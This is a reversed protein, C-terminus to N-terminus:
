ETVPEAVVEFVPKLESKSVLEGGANRTAPNQKVNLGKKKLAAWMAQASESVRNDSVLRHGSKKAIRLLANAMAQGRGQGRAGAPVKSDKIQVVGQDPLEIATIEGGKEHRVTINGRKDKTASIEGKPKQTLQLPASKDSDGIMDGQKRERIARGGLPELATDGAGQDALLDSLEKEGIAGKTGSRIDLGLEGALKDAEAQADFRPEIDGRSRPPTEATLMDPTEPLADPNAVPDPALGLRESLSIAKGSPVNPTPEFDVSGGGPGEPASPPNGGEPPKKGYDSFYSREAANASPGMRNQFGESDVLLRDGLPPIVKAVGKVAGRAVKKAGRAIIGERNLEGAGVKRKGAGTMSSKIDPFDEGVDALMKTEGTMRGPNKKDLKRVAQIDTNGGRQTKKADNLEALSKRADQYKTLLEEQGTNKLETGMADELRDASEAALQGEAELKDDAQPNNKKRRAKTRLASIVETVSPKSGKPFGAKQTADDLAFLYDESPPVVNIADQVEQYTDFHPKKLDEIGADDLRKGEPARLKSRQMENAAGQNEMTMDRRVDEPAIAEAIRDGLGPKKGTVREVDSPLVKMGAARARKVPDQTDFRPGKQVPPAGGSLDAGPATLDTPPAKVKSTVPGLRTETQVYNGAKPKPGLLVTALDPAMYGLTAAGPSGTADMVTDGLAQKGHEMPAFADGLASTLKQASEGQPSYSNEAMFDRIYNASDDDNEGVFPATIGAVGAAAANNAMALGTEPAGKIATWLDRLDFDPLIRLSDAHAASDENVHAYEEPSVQTPRLVGNADARLITNSATAADVENNPDNPAWETGDPNYSKGGPGPITDELRYNKRQPAADAAPASAWRPQAAPTQGVVPADKWGM